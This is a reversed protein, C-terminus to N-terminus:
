SKERYMMKVNKLNTYSNFLYYWQPAPKYRHNKDDYCMHTLISEYCGSYWCGYGGSVYACNRHFVDNVEDKTSFKMNNHPELSDGTTGTSHHSVQLTYKSDKSLIAFNNNKSYYTKGNLATVSVYLEVSKRSHSNYLTTEQYLFENALWFNYKADGFGNKYENWNKNFTATSYKNILFATWGGGYTEQDCYVIKTLNSFSETM